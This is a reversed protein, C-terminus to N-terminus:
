TYVTSVDRVFHLVSPISLLGVACVVVATLIALELGRAVRDPLTCKPANKERISTVSKHGNAAISDFTSAYGYSAGQASM